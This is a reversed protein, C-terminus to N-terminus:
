GVAEMIMGILECAQDSADELEEVRQVMRARTEDDFANYTKHQAANLMKEIEERAADCIDMAEAALEAAHLLRENMDM